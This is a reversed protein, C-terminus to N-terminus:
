ETIQEFYMYKVTGEDNYIIETCTFKISNYYQVFTTMGGNYLTEMDYLTENDSMHIEVKISNINNQIYKGNENKPVENKENQNVAKNVVTAIETGYIEKKYYYEYQLNEEKIENYKARYNLYKGIVLALIVLMICVISIVTKKM